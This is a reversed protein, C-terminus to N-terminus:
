CRAEKMHTGVHFIPKLVCPEKEIIEGLKREFKRFNRDVFEVEHVVCRWYLNPKQFTKLPLDVSLFNIRLINHM